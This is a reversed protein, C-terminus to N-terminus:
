DIDILHCMQRISPAQLHPSQLYRKDMERNGHCERACLGKTKFSPRSCALRCTGQLQVTTGCAQAQLLTVVTRVPSVSAGLLSSCPCQDPLPYMSDATASSSFVPKIAQISSEQPDVRCARTPHKVRSSEGVVRPKVQSSPCGCPSSSLSSASLVLCM